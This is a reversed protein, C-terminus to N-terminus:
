NPSSTAVISRRINAGRRRLDFIRRVSYPAGKKLERDFLNWNVFGDDSEPELLYVALTGKAQATPVIFSRSPLTQLGREWHGKLRVERHGQFPRPSAIISDVMFSEGRATWASDSREVRIGHMRLLRVIATDGPALVYLAPPARDLTSTFRDFVPMRITRYRGSRVKGRPVGAQTISSDSKDIDEKIVDMMTPNAILESRVPVMQLSDPARGWALPQSDARATLARIAASREGALSLIEKVFAYTSAIRRELSDHSYAESLIAIRGRIGFYNTGFRPRADYTAWGERVATDAVADREDSVFNGYDFVQFGHRARMRQRLIPLLSDRAYVGGFVAAPNLSPSYTLAYGHFSGDTTHLDVFVDPDWAAFMALSARTEPAEAKVYDRNLDLGQANARTGVLEPGNQETRNVSQAAFRENGDANYIPVAILVVSDLVNSKRSFTLDRILALLAEKGEIEGAHINGQVYVIPRRLAKAEAPTSVRPRAAIVYPIERGESTRGISGFTLPAGLIRLSDLFARVDSYRSTERFATLEPRTRPLAGSSPPWQRPKSCAVVGAILALMAAQQVGRM